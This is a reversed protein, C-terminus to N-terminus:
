SMSSIPERGHQRNIAPVKSVSAVVAAPWRRVKGTQHRSELTWRISDVRLPRFVVEVGRAQLEEPNYEYQDVSVLRHTQPSQCQALHRSHNRDRRVNM